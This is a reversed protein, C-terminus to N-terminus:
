SMVPKLVARLDSWASLRPLLQCVPVQGHGQPLPVPLQLSFVRSPASGVAWCRKAQVSGTWEPIDCVDGKEQFAALSPVLSGM